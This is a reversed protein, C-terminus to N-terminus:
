SCTITKGQIPASTSPIPLQIGPPGGTVVAGPPHTMVNVTHELKSPGPIRQHIDTGNPRVESHPQDKTENINAKEHHKQEQECAQAFFQAVSGTSPNHNVEKSPSKEGAM